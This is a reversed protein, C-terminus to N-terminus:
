GRALREYYNPGSAGKSAEPSLKQKLLTKAYHLQSRSTSETVDMMAAIETHSYGEVEYLNFVMRCKDPLHNILMVLYDDSVQDVPVSEVKLVAADGPDYLQRDKKNKNYHDIATRVAVSKMWGEIKDASEVQHFKSFIKIFSEQLVDEAEERNRTYRRCLGMLRNKFLDYVERQAKPEGKKCRDYLKQLM